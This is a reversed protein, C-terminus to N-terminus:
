VAQTSERFEIVDGIGTNTERLRGAAIELVGEARFVIKSIRWPKLGHHVALIKGASDLFAVDIPFKMGITHVGECPVLYIGSDKPLESRGSLGKRRMASTGAWEVHTAVITGSKSTNIVQVIRSPSAQETM